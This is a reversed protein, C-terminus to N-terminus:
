RFYAETHTNKKKKKERFVMGKPVLSVFRNSSTWRSSTDMWYKSSFKIFLYLALHNGWVGLEKTILLPIKKFEVGSVDINYLTHGVNRRVAYQHLFVVPRHISGVLVSKVHKSTEWIATLRPLSPLFNVM